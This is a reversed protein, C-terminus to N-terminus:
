KTEKVLSTAALPLVGKDVWQDAYHSLTVPPFDNAGLIGMVTGAQIFHMRNRDFQTVTRLNM